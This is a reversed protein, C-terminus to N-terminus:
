DPKSFALGPSFKKYSPITLFLVTYEMKMFSIFVFHFM